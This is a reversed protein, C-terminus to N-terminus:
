AKFRLSIRHGTVKESTEFDQENFIGKKVGLM